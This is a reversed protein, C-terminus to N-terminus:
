DYTATLWWTGRELTLLHALQSGQSDTVVQLQGVRRRGPRWWREWLPWPGAWGVVPVYRGGDISLRAPAPDLAGRATLGVPIDHEGVLEVRIKHHYVVAPAPSPIQGPWPPSHMQSNQSHAQSHM